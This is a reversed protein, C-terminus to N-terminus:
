TEALHPSYLRFHLLSMSCGLRSQWSQISRDFHDMGLVRDEEEKENETRVQM